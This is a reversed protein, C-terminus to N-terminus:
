VKGARVCSLNKPILTDGTDGTVLSISKEEKTSFLRPFLLCNWFIQKGKCPIICVFLFYRLYSSYMSYVYGFPLLHSSM